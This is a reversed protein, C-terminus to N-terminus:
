VELLYMAVEQWTRRGLQVDKILARKAAEMLRSQGKERHKTDMWNRKLIAFLELISPPEFIGQGHRRFPLYYGFQKMQRMAENYDEVGSENLQLWKGIGETRISYCRGKVVEQTEKEPGFEVKLEEDTIDRIRYGLNTDEIQNHRLFDKVRSLSPERM